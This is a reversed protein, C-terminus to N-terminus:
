PESLAIKKKDARKSPKFCIFSVFTLGAGALFLIIRRFPKNCRVIWGPITSVPQVPKNQTLAEAAAALQAAQAKPYVTETDVPVTGLITPKIREILNPDKKVNELLADYDANLSQLREITLEATKLQEKKQYYSCLEDLRIACSMAAAGVVLFVAFLFARITTQM